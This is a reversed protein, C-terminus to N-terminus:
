KSNKAERERIEAVRERWEKLMEDEIELQIALAEERSLKDKQLRKPLKGEMRSLLREADRESLQKAKELYEEDAVKIKM